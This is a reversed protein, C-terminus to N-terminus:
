GRRRAPLQTRDDRRSQGAGRRSRVSKAPETAAIANLLEAVRAPNLRAGPDASFFSGIFAIGEAATLTDGVSYVAYRILELKKAATLKM